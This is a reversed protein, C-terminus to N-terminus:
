AVEAIEANVQVVCEPIEALTVGGHAFMGRLEGFRLLIELVQFILDGNGDLTAVVLEFPGLAHDVYCSLDCLEALFAFTQRGILGRLAYNQNGVHPVRRGRVVFGVRFKQLGPESIQQGPRLELAGDPSSRCQSCWLSERRFKHRQAYSCFIIAVTPVCISSFLPFAVILVVRYQRSSDTTRLRSRASAENRFVITPRRPPRREMRVSTSATAGVFAVTKIVPSVPVPLSTIARAILSSLGRRLRVRTLTFQAAIGAPRRSLSSKPCSRPAKVPATLECTPRNASASRPVRNRSSIPSM